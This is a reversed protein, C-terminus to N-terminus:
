HLKTGNPVDQDPAILVIDGAEDSFGLVLVESMFPGIQKPPFNTVACIKRGILSEPTYHKTIQASSKKIGLEEGFDITLKFAPRRAEPFIEAQVITGARIDVKAFDDFGIM